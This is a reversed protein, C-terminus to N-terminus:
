RWSSAITKGTDEQKWSMWRSHGRLFVILMAFAALWLRVLSFHILEASECILKEPIVFMALAGVVRYPYAICM